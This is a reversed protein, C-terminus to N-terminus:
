ASPLRGRVMWHRDSSAWLEADLGAEELQQRLEELRFSARLSADFDRYLVDPAGAAYRRLIAQLADESDPRLLDMVLFRAGPAGLSRLSGWFVTPDPLHHLLSNSLLLDYPGGSFEGVLGHIWGVELGAREGAAKAWALMPESGDLADITWDPKAKALRLAIDGPGCGLDIVRAKEADGALELTTKVFAQNGEAFDAEAYAGVQGQEIMLEPELVRKM